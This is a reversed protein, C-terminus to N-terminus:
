SSKKGLKASKSKIVRSTRGSSSKKKAEERKAARSYIKEIERKPQLRTYYLKARRIGRVGARVVEVKEITPSALPYIREIGIQAAGIRRLTVSKNEGRGKIGIVMGEFAQSRTKDGEKIKQVVKVRDGVGFETEKHQATLAM